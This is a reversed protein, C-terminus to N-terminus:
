EENIKSEEVLKIFTKCDIKQQVGNKHRININFRGFYINKLESDPCLTSYVTSITSNQASIKNGEFSLTEKQEFLSVRQITMEFSDNEAKYIKQDLSEYGIVAIGILSLNTIFHLLISALLGFNLVLWILILALGVTGLIGPLSSINLIDSFKYHMMSFLLANVFYSTKLFHKREKLEFLIILTALVPIM